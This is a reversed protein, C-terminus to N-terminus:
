IVQQKSNDRELTIISKTHSHWKIPLRYLRTNSTTFRRLKVTSSLHKIVAEKLRNKSM